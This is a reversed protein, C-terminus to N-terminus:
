DVDDGVLRERLDDAETDTLTLVGRFQFGSGRIGHYLHHQGAPGGTNKVLIWASESSM